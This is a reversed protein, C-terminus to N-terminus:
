SWRRLSRLSEKWGRGGYGTEQLRLRFGGPCLLRRVVWGEKQCRHGWLGWQAVCEGWCFACLVWARVAQAVWLWWSMRLRQMRQRQKQNWVEDQRGGDEEQPSMLAVWEGVLGDPGMVRLLWHPKWVMLGQPRLGQLRWRM